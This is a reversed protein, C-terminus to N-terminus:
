EYTVVKTVADARYDFVPVTGEASQFQIVCVTVNDFGGRRLTEDVLLQCVTEPQRHSMIAAIDDNALHTTLGDSCLLFIDGPSVGGDITELEADESVGIARTIVNRRPYTPAEEPSILGRDLLEQLETHDRSLQSLAGSRYLYCRSDGSWLCRYFNDFVLLAVLTSGMVAGNHQASYERIDVNAATVRDQFDVAFDLANSKREMSSLREVIAGSAVEGAEHGGMGDAVVFIGHEPVSLYRDENLQRVCGVHSLSFASTRLKIM